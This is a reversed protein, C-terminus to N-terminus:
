KKSHGEIYVLADSFFMGSSGCPSPEQLLSCPQAYFMDLPHGMGPYLTWPSFVTPHLRGFDNALEQPNSPPVTTDVSGSFTAVFPLNEAVYSVPSADAATDACQPTDPLCGLFNEIVPQGDSIPYLTDFDSPPSAGTITRVTYNTSPHDCNGPYADNGSMGMMLVLQGGASQGMLHINNPDGPTNIGANDALYRLFCNCDQWQVPWWTGAEILAYSGNVTGVPGPSGSVTAVGNSASKVTYGGGAWSFSPYLVVESDTDSATFWHSAASVQNPGVVKLDGGSADTTVLQYDISYVVYGHDALWCAITQDDNCFDPTITSDARGGKYWGGGHVYVVIPLPSDKPTGTAYFVRYLRTASNISSYSIGDEVTINAAPLLSAFSFWLLAPV